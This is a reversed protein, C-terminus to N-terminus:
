SISLPPHGITPKRRKTAAHHSRANGLKEIRPAGRGGWSGAHDSELRVRNISLDTARSTPGYTSRDTSQYIPLNTPPSIPRETFQYTPLNISQITLLNFSRYISVNIRQYTSISVALNFPGYISGNINACQYIKAKAGRSAGRKLAIPPNAIKGVHAFERAQQNKIM